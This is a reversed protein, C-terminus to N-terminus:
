NLLAEARRLLRALREAWEAIGADDALLDQRIELGAHPLGRREGHVPLTYDTEDDVSYPENEGIVLGQEERLLGALVRGLRADRNFLLGAHWPRLIGGYLPTFSHVAVLITRRGTAARADLTAAIRDHYPDFLSLRRALADEASLNRNGPIDTADSSEAISDPVGPPRNCDIALRSYSQAILCADLAASVREALAAAGIDWAIHRQLDAAGLGLTGLAGPLRNSAHDCAFLYPSAGAERRSVCAPPEDRGILSERQM